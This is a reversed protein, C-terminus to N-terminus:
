GGLLKIIVLIVAPIGGAVGGWLTSKYKLLKIEANITALPGDEARLDDVKQDLVELGKDLRELEALVLKQYESWGNKEEDSM